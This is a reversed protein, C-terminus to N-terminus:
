STFLRTLWGHEHGGVVIVDAHIDEAVDVIAKAPDGVDGVSHAERIGAEAVVARARQEALDVPESVRDPTQPSRVALPIGAVMGTTATPVALPYVMGHGLADDGWYVPDSEAVNIVTYEANDGFLQYATKAAVVSSDTDDVAILVNTM